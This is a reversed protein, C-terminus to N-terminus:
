VEENEELDVADDPTVEIPSSAGDETMKALAAFADYEASIKHFREADEKFDDALIFNSAAEKVLMMSLGAFAAVMTVKETTNADKDSTIVKGALFGIVGVAALETAGMARCAWKKINCEKSHDNCIEAVSKEMTEMNKKFLNKM